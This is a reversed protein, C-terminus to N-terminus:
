IISCRLTPMSGTTLFWSTPISRLRFVNLCPVLLSRLISMKSKEILFLTNEIDTQLEVTERYIENYANELRNGNICFSDFIKCKEGNEKKEADTSAIEDMFYNLLKLKANFSNRANRRTAASKLIMAETLQKGVKMIPNLSSMPDQFIM